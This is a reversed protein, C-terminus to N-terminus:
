GGAPPLWGRGLASVVPAMLRHATTTDLLDRVILAQVAGSLLNWGGGARTAVPMSGADVAQVLLLQGAAATRIRGALYAAWSASHMATPWGVSNGRWADVTRELRRIDTAPLTRLRDLLASVAQHHPGLDVPAVPALRRVAAVWPAALRRRTVAELVDRLYTAAVADCLLATAREAVPDQRASPGQGTWTWGMVDHRVCQLLAELTGIPATTVLESMAAPETGAMTMVSPMRRAAAAVDRWLEDREDDALRRDALVALDDRRLRLGRLMVEATAPGGALRTLDFGLVAASALSYM